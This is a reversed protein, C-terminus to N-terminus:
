SRLGSHRWRAPTLPRGATGVTDLRSVSARDTIAHQFGGGVTAGVLTKSDAGQTAPFGGFAIFNSATKVETFAAGGTLYLLTRDLAYGIRGRASAQWDSQVDFIDGPVFQPPVAAGLTRSSKWGQGDIDGELGYVLNGNQWNCGVQGGGIVTSADERALPTSFAGFAGGPGAAAAVDASGSTSAWKGGVNGGVYCGSWSYAVAPAAKLIPAKVPMDAAIAPGATLVAAFAAATLLHQKM